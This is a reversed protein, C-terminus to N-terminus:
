ACPIILDPSENRSNNIAQGLQVATMMQAPYPGVTKLATDFDEFMWREYDEPRQIAPM